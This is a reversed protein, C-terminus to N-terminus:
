LVATSLAWGLYSSTIGANLLHRRKITIRASPKNTGWVRGGLAVSAYCTVCKQRPGAVEERALGVRAADQRVQLTQRLRCSVSVPM